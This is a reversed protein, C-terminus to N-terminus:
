NLVYFNNEFSVSDGEWLKELKSKQMKLIVLNEPHFKSPMYRMPYRDWSLLKLKPSLYDFSEHLQLRVEEKFTHFNLFRLNTMGAFASEHVHLQDPIEDMDLSIGLVKKTGQFNSYFYSISM